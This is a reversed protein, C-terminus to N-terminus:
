TIGHLTGAPNVGAMNSGSVSYSVGGSLQSQQQQLNSSQPLSQNSQQHQQQPNQAALNQLSKRKTLM